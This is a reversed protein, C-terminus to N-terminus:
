IIKGQIESKLSDGDSCPIPRGQWDLMITGWKKGDEEFEVFIRGYACFHSTHTSPNDQRSLLTILLTVGVFWCIFLTRFFPKM